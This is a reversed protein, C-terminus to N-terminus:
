NAFAPFNLIKLRQFSNEENTKNQQQLASSESHPYALNLKNAMVKASATKSTTHATSASSVSTAQAANKDNNKILIGVLNKSNKLLIKNNLYNAFSTPLKKSSLFGSTNNSYAFNNQSSTTSVNTFQVDTLFKNVHSTQANTDFSLNSQSPLRLSLPQLKSDGQSGVM